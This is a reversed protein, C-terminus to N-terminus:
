LNGCDFINAEDKQNSCDPYIKTENDGFINERVEEGNCIRSSNICNGNTECLFGTSGKFHCDFGPFYQKWDDNTLCNARM